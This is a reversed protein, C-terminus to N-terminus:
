DGDSLRGWLLRRVEEIDDDTPVRGPSFLGLFDGGARPPERDAALSRELDVLVQASLSRREAEARSELRRKLAAPLRITISADKAMDDNHM